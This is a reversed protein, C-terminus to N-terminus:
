SSDNRTVDGGVRIWENHRAQRKPNPHLHLRTHEYRLSPPTLGGLSSHSVRRQLGTALDEIPARADALSTVWSENLCEDRLRGNFTEVDLNQM